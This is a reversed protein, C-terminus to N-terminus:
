KHTVSEWLEEYWSGEAAQKGSPRETETNRGEDGPLQVIYPTEGPRVWHLRKRAEIEVYAPDQLESKRKELAAVTERLKQQEAGVDRLEDRQSLYTRLPVAISLALACLVMAFMAARRTGTMGFAGGTGESRRSPAKPRPPKRARAPRAEREERPRRPRRAREAM